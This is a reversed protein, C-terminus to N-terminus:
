KRRVFSRLISRSCTLFRGCCSGDICNSAVKRYTCSNGFKLPFQDPLLYNTSVYWKVCQFDMRFKMFYARVKPVTSAITRKAVGIYVGLAM